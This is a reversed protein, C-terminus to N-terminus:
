LLVGGSRLRRGIEGGAAASALSPVLLVIWSLGQGLTQDRTEYGPRLSTVAEFAIVGAVVLGVLMGSMLARRPRLLGLGLAILSLLLLTVPGEDASWEYATMLALGSGLASPYIVWGRGDRVRLSAVWCGWAWDMTELGSTCVQAEAAVAREWDAYRTPMRGTGTRLLWASARAQVAHIM